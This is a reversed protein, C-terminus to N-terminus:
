SARDHLSLHTSVLGQLAQKLVTAIVEEPFGDPWAWKAIDAISGAAMFGTVGSTKRDTDNVVGLVDALLRYERCAIHLRGKDDVWEGRVRLVNPHKSLAMLQTERRLREIDGASSLKDVDIVKIACQIPTPQKAAPLQKSAAPCYTALYVISSSGFGTSAVTLLTLRSTLM